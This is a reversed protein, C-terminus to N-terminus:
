NSIALRFGITNYANDPLYAGRDTASWYQADFNWCGGRCVRYEGQSLGLPNTQAESSYNGYWDNCWEWVNGSMDYIGLENPSLNAVSHTRHNSNGSYWAVEDLTNSGSFLYKKSRNGGKAAYEWEAETPFRYNKGTIANLKLLFDQANQWSVNEVPLNDGQFNSPNNGMVANWLSQTVECVGIYFSSLTVKHVPKEDKKEDNNGMLFTGGMVEAMKFSVGNITENYNQQSFSLMFSTIESTQSVNVTKTEKKNGSEISIIHSGFSLNGKYPTLGVIEGDISLSTGAPESNISVERGDILTENIETIKEDTILVKKNITACGPKSLSLDYEGTPLQYITNPTVGYNKENLTITAGAPRTLIDLSGFKASLHLEITRNDGSALEIDQKESHYQVKRAEITYVGPDLQGQWKGIGKLQNDLYISVDEDTTITVNAFNPELIFKVPTTQGESVIVKQSSPFYKEKVIQVTHDGSTLLESQFPTTKLQLKGDIYVKADQEPESSVSIFGFALKLKVNIVKKADKIEFKGAETYYNAAEIRYTYIGSKLKAQYMGNKVFQNNIYVMADSPEVNILLWQSDILEEVTTTVKGTTLVMEYVTAEEIDINFIYDRLVGLQQHSITVKRAGAPVWIWLEGTHQESAIANGILGFDFVFGTQTTVVKIIACKNGNQDIKPSSIRANQDTELKRFSKVVIQQCNAGLMILLLILALILKQM